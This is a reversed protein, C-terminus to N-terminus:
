FFMFFTFGAYALLIFATARDQHEWLNFRILPYAIIIPYLFWSLYAFRNSYEARIVMIWFANSLIYTIALLNFMKDEFNRKITVYWTMLIPMSSYLLFDWRFGTKSFNNARMTMSADEFYHTREDFGLAAFYDGMTNGIILSIIISLFWFGIVFKPNRILILAFIACLSPLLISHHISYAIFMLFFACIKEKNTGLLLPIALLIISCAMGNRMGNVGYSFFSFSAICFLFATWISNRMLKHATFFHAFLYVLSVFLTFVWFQAGFLKYLLIQILMFLWEGQYDLSEIGSEQVIHQWSWDYMYTDGPYAGLVSRIGFYIAIILAIIFTYLLSTRNKKYLVNSEDSSFYYFFTILALFVVVYNYCVTYLWDIYPDLTALNYDFM